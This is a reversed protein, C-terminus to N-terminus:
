LASVDGVCPSQVLPHMLRFFGLLKLQPDKRQIHAREHNLIFSQEKRDLDQPLYIQPRLVGMVFPTELGAM